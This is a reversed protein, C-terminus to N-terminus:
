NVAAAAAAAAASCYRRRLCCRRAAGAAGSHLTAADSAVQRISIFQANGPGVAVCQEQKLLITTKSTTFEPAGYIYM